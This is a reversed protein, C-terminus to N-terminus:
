ADEACEMNKELLEEAEKITETLTFISSLKTIIFLEKLHKNIHCLITEGGANRSQTLIKILVNLGESNVYETDKLDVIFHHKGEAILESFEQMLERSDAMSLIRGSIRILTGYKRTSISYEM